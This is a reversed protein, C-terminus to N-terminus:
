SGTPRCDCTLSRSPLHTGIASAPIVAESGFGCLCVATTIDLWIASGCSCGWHDQHTLLAGPRIRPTRPPWLFAGTATWLRQFRRVIDSRGARNRLRGKSERDDPLSRCSRPRRLLTPWTPGTRRSRRRCPGLVRKKGIGPTGAPRPPWMWRRRVTEHLRGALAAQSYQSCDVARDASGMSLPAVGSGGTVSKSAM